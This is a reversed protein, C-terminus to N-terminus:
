KVEKISIFNLEAPDKKMEDAVIDMFLAAEKESVNDLLLGAPAAPASAPAAPAPAAPVPAAKKSAAGIAASMAKILSMLIVLVVFVVVLGGLAIVLADGVTLDKLYM